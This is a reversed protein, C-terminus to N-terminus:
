PGKREVLWASFMFLSVFCILHQGGRFLSMPAVVPSVKEEIKEQIQQRAGIYTVGYVSTMVTRKVVGRDILGNVLKAARNNKWAKKQAKDLSDPNSADFSLEKAAEDAVRRIVEHMVGVDPFCYSLDTSLTNISTLQDM